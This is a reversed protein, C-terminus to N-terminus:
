LIRGLCTSGMLIMWIMLFRSTIEFLSGVMFVDFFVLGGMFVSSLVMGEVMKKGMSKQERCLFKQTLGGIFGALIYTVTIGALAKDAQWKYTYSLWAIVILSIFSVVVMILISLGYRRMKRM